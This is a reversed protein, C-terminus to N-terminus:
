SIVPYKCVNSMKQNEINYNRYFVSEYIQTYKIM